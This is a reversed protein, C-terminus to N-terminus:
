AYPSTTLRLIAQEKKDPFLNDVARFIFIPNIKQPSWWRKKFDRQDSSKAVRPTYNKGYYLDFFIARLEEWSNVHTLKVEHSIVQM